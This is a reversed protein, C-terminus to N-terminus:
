CKKVGSFLLGTGSLWSRVCTNIKQSLLQRQSEEGEYSKSWGGVSETTVGGHEEAAKEHKYLLEAVECCCLKIRSDNVETINGFTLREIEATAKKAYHTFVPFPVAPEQHECYEAAYYSYDAFATM